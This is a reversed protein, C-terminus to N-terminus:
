APVRAWSALIYGGTVPYGPPSWSALRRDFHYRKSYGNTVVDGSFTGVAGRTQQAIGGHVILNGRPGGSSHNQVYFSKDLAMIHAHIECSSRNATNDAVVVNKASCIGLLDDCGTNPGRGATSNRYRVDDTIYVDAACGLTLQGDLIGKMDVRSGFWAVGNISSLNVTTWSTWSYSSGSKRYARYSLYGYQGSRALEVEYKASTGSLAGCSLGGSSAKSQLDALFAASTPMSVRAVGLEYGAEFTPHSGSRISMSNQASTVKMGFWPDGDIRVQDNAHVRGDLSDGTTFWVDGNVDTYFLYQAFTEDRIIGRVTATM